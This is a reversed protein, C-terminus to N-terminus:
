FDKTLTEGQDLTGPTDSPTSEVPLYIVFVCGEGPRSSVEIGGHHQKVIGYVTSLGLGTGKDKEKTTFFPEFIHKMTDKDMGTGTDRVCLRVYQGPPCMGPCEEQSADEILFNSTELTIVGGKPMADQANVVLNMIIQDIQTADAQIVSLGQDLVLHIEVTERVTRSLIKYFNDIQRNLNITRIDLVQRRSFALVKKILDRALDASDKIIDIQKHMRDEKPIKSSILGSYGIIPTLLNNIDHAITGALREMSDMREIEQIKEEFVAHREEAKKRDSIDIIYVLIAIEGQYAIPEARLDVWREEGRKTFIKINYWKPPEEGRLRASARDKITDVFDQHIVDWYYMGLIEAKSYELIRQAMPNAYLFRKGRHILMGIPAAETFTRFKAESESLAHEAQVRETIDRALGRFGVPLGDPGEIIGVSLEHHRIRGDSAIVEFDDITLPTKDCYVKNFTQFLRESTEKDTYERNDMGMLRERPYKLMRCEANNFFTFRGKLDTEFYGEDINDFIGKYRKSEMEVELEMRRRYLIYVSFVIVLLFLLAAIVVLHWIHNGTEVFLTGTGAYIVPSVFFVCVFSFFAQCFRGKPRM